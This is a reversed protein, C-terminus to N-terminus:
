FRSQLTGHDYKKETQCEGWTLIGEYGPRETSIGCLYGSQKEFLSDLPIKKPPSVFGVLPM